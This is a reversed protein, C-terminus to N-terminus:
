HLLLHMLNCLNQSEQCLLNQPQSEERQHLLGRLLLHRKQRQPEDVSKPRSSESPKVASKAGASASPEVVSPAKTTSEKSKTSSCITETIINVNAHAGGTVLLEDEGAM